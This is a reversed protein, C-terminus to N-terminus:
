DVKIFAKFYKNTDSRIIIYYMGIPLNDIQISSSQLYEINKENLRLWETNITYFLDGNVSYIDLNKSINLEGAIKITIFNYSPCPIIEIHEILKSSTVIIYENTTYIKFLSDSFDIFCDILCDSIRLICSDSCTDPVVWKFDTINSPISDKIIKWEKGANLSFEIKLCEISITKWLNWKILVTDGAKWKEGGNPSILSLKVQDLSDKGVSFIWTDGDNWYMNENILSAIVYSCNNEVVSNALDHLSGPGLWNIQKLIKGSTDIKILCGDSYYGHHGDFNIKLNGAILYNKDSTEIICNGQSYGQPYANDTEIPQQGNYKRWILNYSKNIKLFLVFNKGSSILSDGETRGTIVYNSDSTFIASNAYQGLLDRYAKQFIITGHKDIKKIGINRSSGDTSYVDGIAVISDGSDNLERAYIFSYADDYSTDILLTDFTSNLKLIWGRNGNQNYKIGTAIFNGQKTEYIYKLESGSRDFYKSSITNGNTDIKLIWGGNASDLGVAIYKGEKTEIIYNLICRSNSTYNRNFSTEKFDTKLKVIWGDQKGKTTYTNFGCFIFYDDSTLIISSPSQAGPLSFIKEQSFTIDFSAIILFFAFVINFFKTRM